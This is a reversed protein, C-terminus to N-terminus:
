RIWSCNRLGLFTMVVLIIVIIFGDPQVLTRILPTSQRFVFHFIVSIPFMWWLWASLPIRLHFKSFVKTLLPAILLMGIYGLAIDFLAFPGIRFQRLVAIYNMGLSYVLNFDKVRLSPTDHEAIQLRLRQRKKIKLGPYLARECFQTPYNSHGGVPRSKFSGLEIDLLSIGVPLPFMPISNKRNM